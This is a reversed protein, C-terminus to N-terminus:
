STGRLPEQQELRAPVTDGRNCMSRCYERSGPRPELRACVVVCPEQRGGGSPPRPRDQLLATWPAFQTLMEPHVGVVSPARGFSLLKREGRATEIEVVAATCATRPGPGEGVCPTM